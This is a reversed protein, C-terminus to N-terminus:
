LVWVNGARAPRYSRALRIDDPSLMTQGGVAWSAVSMQGSFPGTTEHIQSIGAAAEPAISLVRRAADAIQSVVVGPVEAYGATYVVVVFADSRLPVALYGQRQEWVVPNGWDDRVAEVSIVPSRPLRVHGGNVKVRHTYSAVTFDQRAERRFLDSLRALIWDARGAEEETLPRGFAAAVDDATALAALEAVAM